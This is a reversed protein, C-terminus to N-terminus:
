ENRCLGRVHCVSLCRMVSYAASCLMARCVHKLGVQLGSVAGQVASKRNDVTKKTNAKCTKDVNRLHVHYFRFHSTQLGKGTMRSCTQFQIQAFLKGSM